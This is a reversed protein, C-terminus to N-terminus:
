CQADAEVQKSRPPEALANGDLCTQFIRSASKPPLKSRHGEEGGGKKSKILGIARLSVNTARCPASTDM